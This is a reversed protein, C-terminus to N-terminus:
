KTQDINKLYFLAAELHQVAKEIKNNNIETTGYELQKKIQAEVKFYDPTLMKVPLKVDLQKLKENFSGSGGGSQIKTKNM